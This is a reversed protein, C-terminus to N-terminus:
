VTSISVRGGLPPEQPGRSEYLTVSYEELVQGTADPYRLQPVMTISRSGASCDRDRQDPKGTFRPDVTKFYVQTADQGGRETAAYITSTGKDCNVDLKVQQGPRARLRVTKQLFIDSDVRVPLDALATLEDLEQDDVEPALALLTGPTDSGTTYLEFDLNIGVDTTISVGTGTAGEGTPTALVLSGLGRRCLVASGRRLPTAPDQRARAREGPLRGYARLETRGLAEVVALCRAVQVGLATNEPAPVALKLRRTTAVDEFEGLLESDSDDDAELARLVSMPLASLNAEAQIRKDQPALSACAALTFFALFPAGWRLQAALRM